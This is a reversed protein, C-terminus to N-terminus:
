ASVRIGKGLTIKGVSSLRVDQWKPSWIILERVSSLTTAVSYQSSLCVPSLCTDPGDDQDNCQRKLKRTKDSSAM